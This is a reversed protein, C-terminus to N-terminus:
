GPQSFTVVPTNHLSLVEGIKIQESLVQQSQLTASHQASQQLTNSMNSLLYMLPVAKPNM